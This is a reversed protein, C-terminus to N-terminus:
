NEPLDIVPREPPAAHASKAARLQFVYTLVQAVAVYLQSPIEHGLEVTRYLARALPPAEFIPVGHATAVERIRAAILDVGKAVVVPARNRKEDYRLAVAFHTPNVVVVDATPIEQMMRRQAQERQLQRIRGKVEPSGESEKLERRVEDKTMMLDRKHQWLQFPVDVAAILVLAGTLALLAKGTLSIAHAIAAGIHEQGLGMLADKDLWLVLAGAGGVVLFKGLSKGLEVWARISFLRSLGNVPNLRNFDPTLATSSFAWGGLSLPAALAAAFTLAMVPAVAMLATLAAQSLARTLGTTDALSGVQLSLAGKMMGAMQGGLGKGLLLLGAGAVLMVAAATLDRSRPVQGKRRAEELRKPTPKESRDERDTEAM